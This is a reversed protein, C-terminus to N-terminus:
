TKIASLLFSMGILGFSAIWKDPYEFRLMGYPTHQYFWQNRLYDYDLMGALYSLPSSWLLMNLKPPTSAILEVWPAIWLPLTTLLIVVCLMNWPLNRNCPFQVIAARTLHHMFFSLSFVAVATKASLLMLLGSKYNLSLTVLVFALALFFSWVLISLWSTKNQWDPNLVFGLGVITVAQIMMVAKFALPAMPNSYLLPLLYAGLTVFFWPLIYASFRERYPSDNVKKM